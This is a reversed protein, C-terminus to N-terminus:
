GSGNKLNCVPCRGAGVEGYWLWALISAHMGPWGGLVCLISGDRARM